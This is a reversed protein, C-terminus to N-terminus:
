GDARGNPFEILAAYVMEIAQGETSGSALAGSPLTSAGETLQGFMARAEAVKGDLHAEM